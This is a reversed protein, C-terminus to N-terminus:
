DPWASYYACMCVQVTYLAHSNQALVALILAMYFGGCGSNGFHEGNPIELIVVIESRFEFFSCIKITVTMAYAPFISVM